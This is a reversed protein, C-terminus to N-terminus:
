GYYGGDGTGMNKELSSFKTFEGTWGMQVTGTGGQRNKAVIVDVLHAKEPDEGYYDRSLFIVKDADQEISGSERLDSLMPKRKEKEKESARGLQSCTIVPVNLELALLKLGRTLDSVENVRSGDKRLKDSQMLQLYDVIVLGLNKIRRLKSKMANITINSTDDIYINTESLNASAYALSDWDKEELQGTRLKTADILAESSLIRSVLAQNPMELSFICVAQKSKKAVNAGINLCFATKGVGPRAGVIILEGRGLGVILNDLDKFGCPTGKGEGPNEKLEKLNECVEVLVDRIHVFDRRENREAIEFIRQEAVDVLNEVTDNEEYADREIEQSAEILRRLVSKDYVIKVYDRINATTPVIDVLLQIYSHAASEDSYIGSTVIANIVAINDVAKNDSKLDVITEYIRQHDEVYFDKPKLSQSAIEYCVEPDAIICGLVAQEADVSYPMKRQLSDM